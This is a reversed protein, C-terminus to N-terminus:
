ICTYGDRLWICNNIQSMYVIERTGLLLIESAYNQYGMFPLQEKKNDELKKSLNWNLNNQKTEKKLM